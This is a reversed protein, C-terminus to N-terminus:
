SLKYFESYFLLATVFSETPIYSANVYILIIKSFMFQIM